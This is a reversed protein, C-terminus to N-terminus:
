PWSDDYVDGGDLRLTNFFETLACRSELSESAEQLQTLLHPIDAVKEYVLQPITPSVPDAIWHHSDKYVLHVMDHTAGDNFSQITDLYSSRRLDGPLTQQKQLLPFLIDDSVLADCGNYRVICLTRYLKASTIDLMAIEDGHLHFKKTRWVHRSRLFDMLDRACPLFLHLSSLDKITSLKNPNQIWSQPIVIDHLASPADTLRLRSSIVIESCIDELYDCIISVDLLDPERLLFRLASVGCSIANRNSGDFSIVIDRAVNDDPGRSCDPEGYSVRYGERSVSGILSLQGSFASGLRALRLIDMLYDQPKDGPELWNVIDYIWAQVTEICEPANRISSLNLDVISGQSYIPPYVARYLSLLWRTNWGQKQSPASYMIDLIRIQQLHADVKVNYQAANLSSQSLHEDLCLEDHCHGDVAFSLCPLAFIQSRYCLEQEALVKRRLHAGLEEKLRLNLEALTFRNSAFKKFLFTGEQVSYCHGPLKNIAFVRRWQNNALPLDRSMLSTLLHVYREFDEFFATLEASSRSLSGQVLLTSVRMDFVLLAIAEDGRRLFEQGIQYPKDFSTSQHIAQFLRIQNRDSISLYELPIEQISEVIRRAHSGKQRLKTQVPSGFSYEKWINDLAIDAARQIAVKNTSDRLFLQIAQTVNNRSLQVEAAEIFRRKSQLVLIRPEDLNKNKLYELEEDTSLFLPIPPRLLKSTGYYHRVCMELLEAKCWTPMKKDHYKFLRVIDDFYGAKQYQKAASTFDESAIYFNAAEHIDGALAFCKAADRYYSTREIDIAEEACKAFAEAAALWAVRHEIPQLISRAEERLHFAGAIRRERPLGACEFCHIAQEFNGCHFLKHGTEAWQEPSSESLYQFIDAHLPENRVLGRKTWLERMAKSNESSDLLYLNKKARTIGVYLNKLETCLVAYRGQCGVLSKVANTQDGCAELIIRWQFYNAASDKFFEYLFVDDFELGKSEELTLIVGKVGIEKKLRIRAADDRVLLCQNAGLGGHKARKCFSARANFLFYPSLSASCVYKLKSFFREFPFIQNDRGTFFVPEPGSILGHESRLIDITDPWFMTILEVVAHACNIIGNHSRHNVVLQFTAPKLLSKEIPMKADGEIRYIFTKLDEFRFGSGVSITQATDGAWLLGEPKRCLIRLLVVDTILNDQVEDVYLYDMRRGKLVSGESLLMKLIAYTRDALDYDGREHKLKQYSQFLTYLKIREQAFVPYDRTSLNVYTQKDLFRNLHFAKESGKIVGMFEGFVLSPALTKTMSQPFRPWYTSKFVNYTVFSDEGDIVKLLTCVAPDNADLNSLDSQLDAAVMRALKDFTIFLPFDHDGLESYKFPMGPRYDVANLPDIMKRNNNQSRLKKLEEQTCEGLALSDVLNMFFGEVKASLIQSKTIFVQRPKPTEPAEEWARQIALMRFLMATTKGTGSRGIIFCSTACRVIEWEQATLQFPLEVDQDAALGHLYAKSLKVYKDLVFDCHEESNDCTLATPSFKTAQEENNLLFEAPSYVDTGPRARERFTCRDCYLKGRRALQRSLSEWMRDLQKHTYIGYIKIAQREIQGGDDPICDIQYVLRLNSFIEAEYIPVGHSPGHLIKYNNGFFEGRSLQRIKKLVCMTKKGDSRKLERLHKTARSSLMIQWEGFGDVDHIHLAVQLLKDQTHVSPTLVDKEATYVRKEPEPVGCQPWGTGIYATECHHRFRPETLSELYFRLIQKLSDAIQTTIVIAEHSDSPMKIGFEHLTSVDAASMSERRGSLIRASTQSINVGHFCISSLIYLVPWVNAVYRSYQGVTRSKNAHFADAPLSFFFTSLELLLERFFSSSLELPDSPFAHLVKTTMFTPESLVSFVYVFLRPFSLLDTVVDEIRAGVLAIHLNELADCLGGDIQIRASTFKEMDLVVM